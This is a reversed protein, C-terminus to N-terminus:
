AGPSPCPSCSQILAGGGPIGADWRLMSEVLHGLYVQVCIRWGWGTGLAPPWGEIRKKLRQCGREYARRRLREESTEERVEEKGQAPAPPDSVALSVWSGPSGQELM